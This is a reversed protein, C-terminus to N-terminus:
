FAKLREVKGILKKRLRASYRQSIPLPATSDPLYALYRNSTTQEIKHICELNLITSRHVRAFQESPLLAEWAKMSKHVLESDADDIHVRTYDGEATIGMVKHIKVFRMRQGANLVVMDNYRFRECENQSPLTCADLRAMTTKFRKRSVPKLLYDLANIEFARVAYADFATIFVVRAEVATQQFLDFGTEGQLQIDLFILDPAKTHILQVASAINGTAGVIDIHPYDSLLLEIGKIALREDDVIIAKITEM